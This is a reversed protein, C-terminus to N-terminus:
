LCNMRNVLGLHFSTLTYCGMNVGHSVVTQKKLLVVNELISFNYRITGIRALKAYREIRALVSWLRCHSNRSSFGCSVKCM